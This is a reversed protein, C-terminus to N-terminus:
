LHVTVNPLVAGIKEKVNSVNVIPNEGLFVEKLSRLATLPQIDELSSVMNNKLSLISLNPLHQIDNCNSIKNNDLLLIEANQLYYAAKVQTICNGSLNLQKTLAFLEMHKTCTLKRGSINIEDLQKGCNTICNEIVCSSMLDNYYNTRSPDLLQLKQVHNLISNEHKISDIAWMLSVITLLTWKNDPELDYLQECAELEQNLVTTKAVSLNQRFSTAGFNDAVWSNEVKGDPIDLTVIQSENVQIVLSSNGEQVDITARWVHSYKANQPNNWKLDIIKGDNKVVICDSKSRKSLVVMIRKIDTKIQVCQIKLQAEGRGLLWRHYFWASQDSPDTFFANQAMEFEGLLIDEKVNVTNSPDPYIVPLLKSRYHWSSYNSFNAKIKDTTFELEKESPRGSRKVLFRRYDWCHFNREDYELYKDCLKLEKEWKPHPLHDMIWARQHWSGYSKPNVRLCAELFMLEVEMVEQVYDEPHKNALDTFIERRINWLTYFDPNAELVKASAHLSKESFAEDNRKGFVLQTAANYKKLKEEREKRKREEQEATSKVKLRGHMIRCDFM